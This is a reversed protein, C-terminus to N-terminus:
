SSHQHQEKGCMFDVPATLRLFIVFAGCSHDKQGM